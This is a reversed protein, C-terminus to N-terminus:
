LQPRDSENAKPLLFVIAGGRLERATIKLTEYHVILERLPIRAERAGQFAVLVRKGIERTQTAPFWQPLTSILIRGRADITFSGRPLRTLKPTQDTRTFLNMFDM